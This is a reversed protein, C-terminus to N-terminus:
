RTPPSTQRRAREAEQMVNLLKRENDVVKNRNHYPHTKIGGDVLTGKTYCHDTYNSTSHM